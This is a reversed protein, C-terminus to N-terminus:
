GAALHWPISRFNSFLSWNMALLRFSATSFEWSLVNLSAAESQLREPEEVRDVELLRLEFGRVWIWRNLSLM